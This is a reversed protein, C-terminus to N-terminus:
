KRVGHWWRPVAKVPGHFTSIGNTDIDELLYFYRKGNLVWEDVFDYDSGDTPTGLAPIIAENMKKFGEARWINFGANDPESETNWKLTVKKNSPIAKLSSLNINTPVCGCSQLAEEIAAFRLAVPDCADGRGEGDFDAQDPNPTNPCNDCADGVDDGDTENQNSNSVNPCNDISSCVGDKDPDDYPASDCYDGIGDGDCDRQDQNYVTSCNDCADGLRDYDSDLQDPNFDTPCNDCADPIDDEDTDPSCADGIGNHCTSKQDPNSITSCNDPRVQSNTCWDVWQFDVYGDCDTDTLESPVSPCRVKDITFTVVCVDAFAKNYFIFFCALVGIGIFLKSLLNKM